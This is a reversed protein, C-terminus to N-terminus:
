GKGDDGGRYKIIYRRSWKLNIMATVMGNNIRGEVSAGVSESGIGEAEGVGARGRASLKGM